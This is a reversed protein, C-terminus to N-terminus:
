KTKILIVQRKGIKTTKDFSGKSKRFGYTKVQSSSPPGVADLGHVAAAVAIIDHNQLEIKKPSKGETGSQTISTLQLVSSLHHTVTNIDVSHVTSLHKNVIQHGFTIFVINIDWLTLSILPFTAPLLYHAIANVVLAGCSHSDYQHTYPLWVWTFSEVFHNQLWRDVVQRLVAPSASDIPDGYSVKKERQNIILAVWHNSNILCLTSISEMSGGALNSGLYPLEYCNKSSPYEISNHMDLSQIKWTTVTYCLVIEHRFSLYSNTCIPQQIIDLM